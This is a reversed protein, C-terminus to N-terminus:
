KSKGTRCGLLVRGSQLRAGAGEAPALAQQQRETLSRTTMM